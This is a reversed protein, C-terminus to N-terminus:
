LGFFVARFFDSPVFYVGDSPDKKWTLSHYWPMMMVQTGHHVNLEVTHHLMDAATNKLVTLYDNFDITIGSDATSGQSSTQWAEDELNAMIEDHPIYYVDANQQVEMAECIVDFLKRDNGSFSDRLTLFIQSCYRHHSNDEHWSEPLTTGNLQLLYNLVQDIHIPGELALREGEGLRVRHDINPEAESIMWDRGVKRATSFAGRGAKQRATAPSIGNRLAWDKLPILAAGGVRIKPLQGTADLEVPNGSDDLLSFLAEAIKETAAVEASEQTAPTEIKIEDM